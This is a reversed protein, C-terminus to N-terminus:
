RDRSALVELQISATASGLAKAKEYWARAMAIDPVVGIVGRTELLVPDYTTAILFAAQRDGAEAARRFALRAPGLNGAAMFDEGRKVLDAIEERDLRLSAGASGFEKAKEYWARAMAIDPVVGIAGRTKLLVPDYTTALLFAARSDGAEAARRLALRAPGLNGAAMFDEGRKLLNTIEERDLRRLPASPPKSNPTEGPQTATNGTGVAAAVATTQTPAVATTAEKTTEKATKPTEVWTLRMPLRDAVTDDAMRVEVGLDITGVFGRPPRIAAESLESASLLWDGAGLSVGTSITSGAPLGSLVLAADGGVETLSLGLPIVDDLSGPPARLNVLRVQQSNPQEAPM